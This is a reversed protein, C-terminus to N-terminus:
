AVRFGRVCIKVLIFFIILSNYTNHITCCLMKGLVLWVRLVKCVYVLAGEYACM